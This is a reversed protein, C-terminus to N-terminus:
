PDLYVIEARPSARPFRMVDKAINLRKSADCAASPQITMKNISPSHALLLKIFLLETKSGELGRIDVIQLQNLTRRLCNRSGLHNLAQQEDYQIIQPEMPVNVICLRVLNPSTQLLSLASLLQEMDNLQFNIFWLRNLSNDAHPLLNLMRDASLFKIFHGDIFFQQVNRLISLLRALNMYEVRLFNELPRRLTIGVVTLSPNNALRCLMADPCTVLSLCQLNPANIDLNYVHTCSHLTLKRLRPLNVMAGSFNTGFVVNRLFVDELYPFGVFGLPSKFICNALKLNRLESCSFVHSPLLYLWNANILVLERVGNRSLFLMWQDVEQFSDLFMNPIYLTLKSIPRPHLILVQNVIRIFGNLGFAGYKVIKKAFEEDLVLSTMTTWKYRWRKSLVSTRVADQVALRELISGILHEPLNSIRDRNLSDSAKQTM